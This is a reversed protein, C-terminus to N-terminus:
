SDGHPTQPSSRGDPRKRTTENTSEELRETTPDPELRWKEKREIRAIRGDHVIAEVSGFRLGRLAELLAREAANPGPESM